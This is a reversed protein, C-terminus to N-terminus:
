RSNAGVPASILGRTTERLFFRVVQDEMSRFPEVTVVPQRMTGRVSLHVVRDALYNNALLLAGVPGSAAAALRTLILNTIVSDAQETSAVVNLALRGSINVTGTIYLQLRPSSISLRNIHIVGRRLQAEIRGENFRTSGTQSAGPVFVLIRDFIPVNMPQVDQLDARLTANLDNVRRVNRGSFNFTGTIRGRGLQTSSGGFQRLLSQLEVRNFRYRGDLVVSPAQRVTLDGTIRGGALSASSRTTRLDLRGTTPSWDALFPVRADRVSVNDYTLSRSSVTGALRWPNGPRARVDLDVPGRAPFTQNTPNWAMLEQADAGQLVVRVERQRSDVFSWRGTALVRGRAFSGSVDRLQVARENGALRARLNQTVATNGLAAERVLLDGQWSFGEATTSWPVEVDFVGRLALSTNPLVLMAREFQAGRITLNGSGINLTDRETRVDTARSGSLNFTGGFLNGSADYQLQKNQQTVHASVAAVEVDRVALNPISLEANVSWEATQSFRGPPIDLDVKGRSAGTLNSPLEAFQTLLKGADIGEWAAKVTTHASDSIPIRAEGTFKGDYLGAEVNSLEIADEDLKYALSARDITFEDFRIQDSSAQGQGTVALPDLTGQIEGSASVQGTLRDKFVALPPIAGLRDLQAQEISFSGKVPWPADIGIQMAATVPQGDLKANLNAVDLVGGNLKLQLPAIEQLEWDYIHLAPMEVEATAIWEKRRDFAGAPITLKVSGDSNGIARIQPIAFGASLKETNIQSWALEANLGWDQQTNVILKGTVTGDYLSAHLDSVTISKRTSSAHFQVADIRHEDFTLKDARVDAEGTLDWPDVTGRVQGKLDARGSFRTAIAALQPIRDLRELPLHKLNFAAEVPWPQQLGLSGTLEIPDGDITASLKSLSLRGDQIQLGSAQLNAVKLEEYGFHDVTMEADATWAAVQDFKANPITLKLRGVSKGADQIPESFIRDLPLETWSLNLSIDSDAFPVSADGAINGSGIQAAVNALDISDPQLKYDLSLSEVKTSKVPVQATLWEPPTLTLSSFEAHGGGSAAFPLFTGSLQATAQLEGDVVTALTDLQEVELIAALSKVSDAVQRTAVRGDIKWAQAGEVNLEADGTVTLTPAQMRFNRATVVGRRLALDATVESPPLQHASFGEIRASGNVNWEDLDGISGVDVAANLSGTLRGRLTKLPEIREFLASLSVGRADFRGTLTGLPILEMRANASVTGPGEDSHVNSRPTTFQLRDLHLNGDRYGLAVSLDNMRSDAVTLQPSTLTGNLRWATARWFANWPLGVGISGSVRGSVAIPFEIGIRRMNRALEDISVDNFTWTRSGYRIGTNAPATQQAQAVGSHFIGSAVFFAILLVISTHSRRISM